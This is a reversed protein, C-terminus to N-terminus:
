SFFDMFKGFNKNRFNKKIGFHKIRFTKKVFFKSTKKYILEIFGTIEFFTTTNAKMVIASVTKHHNTTSFYKNKNFFKIFTSPIQLKQPNM